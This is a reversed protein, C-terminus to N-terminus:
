RSIHYGVHGDMLTYGVHNTCGVAKGDEHTDNNWEPTDTM